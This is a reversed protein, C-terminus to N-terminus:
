SQVSVDHLQFAETTGHSLDSLAWVVGLVPTFRTKLVEGHNTTDHWM